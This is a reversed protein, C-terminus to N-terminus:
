FKVNKIEDLDDGYEKVHKINEKLLNNCYSELSKKEEDHGKIYKLSELVLNYRDIKNRSKLDFQTTISGEENYGFVHFNKNTREFILEHILSKYGHFAFIIHNEKTFLNDFEKDSFENKNRLKMLDIVNIVKVKIGKINDKLIKAALIIEYTPTDGAGVLIVDPNKKCNSIFDLTSIGKEVLDIAEKMTLWQYTQHKSAVIANINNKTNLVKNYCCILSNADIPLYIKTIDEKMDILENLFGPNQHTYGNHDQQWTHSTLLYNLSSIPSRWPVEKSMKLWKAHQHCMSDVVKIFAEYSSIVGHRGTLLYGELLGECIHESLISDIVRGDNSLFEDNPLVKANWKRNTAEFIHNLRNSLAEDPSLVLFNDKNLAIIDRIFNGLEMMDSAKEAGRKKFKFEYNRFDPLTLDKLLSGGNCVPNNGMCKNTNPIFKRYEEKFRGNDDFLEEPKYSRLWEELLKVNEIHTDDVTIPVQHARFTGEIEKEDVRKPGMFGKPTKVIVVPYMVNDNNKCKKIEKIDKVVMDLVKAMREHLYLPDTGSVLYPKYGHGVFFHYLEDNTMRGFITPNSIKYGNLNLIPLVIGDTKPNIIRNLFWSASLPGTEAEGDGIVCAAILDKNDLVAGYAHSLSYGLEGGEHISGPIECSAHSSLGYPFSFMKFLKQMGKKDETVDNYKLTFSGELYTNSTLANGGHGPGSIYIMNLDYKKIIRNLHVYIFNQGSTTGFHGVVRPKVDNITLPRELLPNDLLYLQGVSLYNVARYYADMIELEKKTLSKM